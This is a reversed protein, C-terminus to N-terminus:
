CEENGLKIGQLVRPRVTFSTELFQPRKKSIALTGVVGIGTGILCNVCDLMSDMLAYRYGSPASYFAAIEEATGHLEAFTNGGNFFEDPILKQMNTGFLSDISFEIVEWLCAVALSAAIAFILSFLGKQEVNKNALCSRAIGYFSTFQLIGSAFHLAKDWMKVKYYFEFTEGLSHCLVFTWWLMVITHSIDLRFLRSILFPIAVCVLGIANAILVLTAQSKSYTRHIPNLAGFLLGTFFLTAFLSSIVLRIRKKFARGRVSSIMTMSEGNM